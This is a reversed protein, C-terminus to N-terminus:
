MRSRYSEPLGVYASSLTERDFEQPSEGNAFEYLAAKFIGEMAAVTGLAISFFIAGGAFGLLPHVIFLVFTPIFAAVVALIYVLGFGFSSTFQEGWTQSFLSKSRKFAQIPGLGEAVLVPIVFFSLYAWVGGVLSVALVGLFGFRERAMSRLLQLLLGVTAAIIAWGLITHVHTAAKRLGSGVNPDGGRLRELAAAVLASNFFIGIFTVTFFAGIGLMTDGATTAAEGADSDMRDLTGTAAAVGGFVALTAIISGAAMLPFFILERDKMLVRWSMKMLEFTHGITGFFGM